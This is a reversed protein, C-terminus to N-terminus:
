PTFESRTINSFNTPLPQNDPSIDNPDSEETNFDNENENEYFSDIDAAEYETEDLTTDNKLSSQQNMEQVKKVFIKFEGYTCNELYEPTLHCIKSLYFINNYLTLLNDNFLIKIIQFFNTIDLTLNISYKEIASEFFYFEKIQKHILSIKNNIISFYKIPLKDINEKCFLNDKKNYVDQITPIDFTLSTNDDKYSITKFGELCEKVSDFSKQLNITINISETETKYTAFITNGISVQRINILILLYELLNLELLQQNTLSTIDTLISNINLLLNNVDIPDNLLSKLITKYSKLTLEKFVINQDKFNLTTLFGTM